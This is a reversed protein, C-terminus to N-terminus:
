KRLPATSIMRSSSKRAFNSRLARVPVGATKANRMHVFSGDAIMQIWEGWAKRDQKKFQELALELVRHGSAAKGVAKELIPLGRLIHPLIRELYERVRDDM